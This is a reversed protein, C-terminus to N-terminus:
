LRNRLVYYTGKEGIITEVVGAKNLFEMVSDFEDKSRQILRRNKHVLHAGRVANPYHESLEDLVPKLLPPYNQSNM